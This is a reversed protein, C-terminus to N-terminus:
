KDGKKQNKEIKLNEKPPNKEEKKIPKKNSINKVTKERKEEKNNKINPTTKYDLKSSIEKKIETKLKTKEIKKTKDEEEIKKVIDSKFDSSPRAPHMTDNLPSDIVYGIENEEDKTVMYGPVTIKRDGIAIHGHSILQRAQMPTNAFGRLYTLTQLRRALIAETELALVDDLTSNLPLINFRTLHTLL